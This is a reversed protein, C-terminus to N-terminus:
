NDRTKKYLVAMALGLFFWYAMNAKVVIFSDVVFSMFLMTLTAAMVGAALGAALGGNKQKFGKWARVIIAGILILFAISGAIGTEVFNRLYQNHSETGMFIAGKGRGFLHEAITGSLAAQFQPIVIPEIRGRQASDIIKVPSKIDSLREAGEISPLILIFYAGLTFAGVGVFLLFSAFAAKLTKTNWVYLAVSLVLAFWFGVFVTKSLTGLIGVIISLIAALSLYEKQWSVASKRWFSYLWWNFLFIFLLLFFAGTPFVGGENLAATGYEGLGRKTFFLQYFVWAINALGIAVWLRILLKASSLSRISFFTFFYVFFLQLEKAFYFFGRPVNLNGFFYNILLSLFGIGLWFVIPLFLPPKDLKLRRFKLFSAIWIIALVLIWIDEGRVDIQRELGEIIGVPICPTLGIALALLVLSIIVWNLKEHIIYEM